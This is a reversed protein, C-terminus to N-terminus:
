IVTPMTETRVFKGNKLKGWIQRNPNYPDGYGDGFSDKFPGVEFECDVARKDFMEKPMWEVEKNVDKIGQELCWPLMSLCPPSKLYIRYGDSYIRQFRRGAYDLLFAKFQEHTSPKILQWLEGILKEQETLETM